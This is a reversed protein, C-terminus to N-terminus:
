FLILALYIATTMTLASLLTSITVTQVCFDVDGKNEISLMVVNVAVPTSSAIFIAQAVVGDFGFLRILLYAAAPGGCLRFFSAVYPTKNKFDIRTKSIQVGLSILAVSVLGNRLFQLAPWVPTAAFDFPLLKFLFACLVAYPSPMRIVKQLGKKWTMDDGGSNILGITNVAINQALMTMVQVSLVLELYPASGGSAFPPNSFVLTILSVGINGSNCFMLTNEFAKRTKGPLKLLKAVGAGMTFNVLLLVANLLVVRVLDATVDTSFINVFAFAPMILYLSIKTLTNIDLSFKKDILIGLSLLIFIPIINNMLISLFIDM